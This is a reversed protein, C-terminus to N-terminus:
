ADGDRGIDLVVFDAFRFEGVSHLGRGFYRDLVRPNMGQWKHQALRVSQTSAVSARLGQQALVQQTQELDVFVNHTMLARGRPKLHQGLQALFPDILARGDAGGSSWSPLRGDPLPALLPFQPLNTVILDFTLGRCPAWLDGQLVSARETLGQQALLARTTDVAQADLDVGM